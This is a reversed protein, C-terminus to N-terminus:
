SRRLNHSKGMEYPVAFGREYLAVLIPPTNILIM